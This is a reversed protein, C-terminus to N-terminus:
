YLLRITPAPAASVGGVNGTNALDAFELLFGGNRDALGRVFSAISGGSARFRGTLIADPAVAPVTGAADDAITVNLAGPTNGAQASSGSYLVLKSYNGVVPVFLLSVEVERLAAHAFQFSVELNDFKLGAGTVNEQPLRAGASIANSPFVVFVAGKSSDKFLQPLAGTSTKTSSLDQSFVFDKGALWAGPLYGPNSYFAQALTFSGGSRDFAKVPTGSPDGSWGTTALVEVKGDGDVDSAGLRIPGQFGPFVDTVMADPTPSYNWKLYAQRLHVADYVEVTPPGDNKAVFLEDNGDGDTDGAAVSLGGSYGGFPVLRAALFKGFDPPADPTAPAPILHADRFARVDGAVGAGSATVVYVDGEARVTTVRVEGNYEAFTYVSTRLTPTGLATNSAGPFSFVKLHGRGGLGPTVIVEARGDHDLDGAAAFVGGQFNDYATFRGLLQSEGKLASAGDFVAVDAQAGFGAAAILDDTGDANVDGLAVRTDGATGTFAEAQFGNLRSNASPGVTAYVSVEPDAAQTIGGVGAVFLGSPTTRDELFECRLALPSRNHRRNAGALWQRFHRFM